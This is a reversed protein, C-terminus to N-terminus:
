AMQDKQKIQNEVLVAKEKEILKDRIQITRPKSLAEQSTVLKM